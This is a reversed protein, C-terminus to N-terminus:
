DWRERQKKVTNVDEVFEWGYKMSESRGAQRAEVDSDIATKMAEERLPKYFGELKSDRMGPAMLLMTQFLLLQTYNQIIDPSQSTDSPLVTNGSYSLETYYNKDPVADVVFYKKGSQFYAHPCGRRILGFDYGDVKTIRTYTGGRPEPETPQANDAPDFRHKVRWWNMLKFGGPIGVLRPTTSDTTGTPAPLIITIVLNEMYEFTHEGEMWQVAMQVKSPISADFTTGRKIENSVMTYFQGLTYTM